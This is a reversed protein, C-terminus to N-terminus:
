YADQEPYSFHNPLFWRAKYIRLGSEEFVTEGRTDLVKESWWSEEPKLIITPFAQPGSSISKINKRHMLEARRVRQTGLDITYVDHTNTLWLSDKGYVPFLDHAGNGPLQLSDKLIVDPQERDFNYAYRYLKDKGATWLVERKRDWVVNHGSPLWHQKKYGASTATTDVRFITLKNGTSSAVALNGDPFLEASHPNGGAYASFVVKKDAIRILAVGGGSATVLVYKRDYVPKAEDPNSFWDPNELDPAQEPRWEWVTHGEGAEVIRISPRSQEALVMCQDCDAVSLTDVPFIPDPINTPRAGDGCAWLGSGALLILLCNLMKM